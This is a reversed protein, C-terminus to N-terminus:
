YSPKKSIDWLVESIIGDHLRLHKPILKLLFPLRSSIIELHKQYEDIRRDIEYDSLSGNHWEESFYKM